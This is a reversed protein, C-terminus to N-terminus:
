AFNEFSISIGVCVCVNTGVCVYERVSVFRDWLNVCMCVCVCAM